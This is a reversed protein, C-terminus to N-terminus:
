SYQCSLCIFTAFLFLRLGHVVGIIHWAKLWLIM